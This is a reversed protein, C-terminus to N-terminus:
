IFSFNRFAFYAKVPTNVVFSYLYPIWATPKEPTTDDKKLCAIYASIDHDPLDWLVCLDPYPDAAGIHIPTGVHAYGVPPVISDIPDLGHKIKEGWTVYSDFFKAWKTFGPRPQGYGMYSVHFGRYALVSASIAVFAAALSHGLCLVNSAEAQQLFDNSQKELQLFQERFGCHVLLDEPLTTFQSKLPLVCVKADAIADAFSSTGRFALVAVVGSVTKYLIGYGQADSTPDNFFVPAATVKQLVAVYDADKPDTQKGQQIASWLGAVKVPDEYALSSMRAGDLRLAQSGPGFDALPETVTPAALSETVTPDAPTTTSTPPSSM